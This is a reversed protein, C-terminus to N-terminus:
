LNENKLTELLKVFKAMNKKRGGFEEMSKRANKGFETRLTKDQVLEEVSSIFSNLNNESILGNYEHILYDTGSLPANTGVVPCGAMMAEAPPMHLGEQMATSLWIDVENYFKNKEEITPQKLYKDYRKPPNDAGFLYLRIDYGKSKLKSYVNFLWEVRKIKGHKKHYLGGLVVFDKEKKKLPYIDNLDYGPKVIHSEVNYSLLKNQLDFSNVFKITPAGLIQKVIQDEPMQWTEWGRIWHCKIGCQKPASLTKFVSKYGTAIIFDANPLKIGKPIVHNFKIKSWTHMNRMSDIFTVDHGLDVLANGSRVLTLSGGNNGLGVRRLDFIIKM